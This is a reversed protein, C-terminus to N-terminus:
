HSRDHDQDKIVNRDCKDELALYFWFSFTYTEMWVSPILAILTLTSMFAPRTDATWLVAEYISRGSKWGPQGCHNFTFPVLYFLEYLAPKRGAAVDAAVIHGWRILVNGISLCSLCVSLFRSHFIVSPILLIFAQAHGNQHVFHVDGGFASALLKGFSQEFFIYLGWVSM